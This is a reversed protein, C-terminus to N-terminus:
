LVPQQFQRCMVWFQHFADPQPYTPQNNSKTRHIVLDRLFETTFKQLSVVASFAYSLDFFRPGIIYLLLLLWKSPTEYTGPVIGFICTM